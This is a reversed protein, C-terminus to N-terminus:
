STNNVLYQRFPPLFYVFSWPLARLTLLYFVLNRRAQHNPALNSLELGSDVHM